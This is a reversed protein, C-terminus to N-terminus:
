GQRETVPSAIAPSVPTSSATAPSATPFRVTVRTGRGLESELTVSWGYRESLRQVISLGIGQGEGKREGARYFPTFVKTVEDQHIGIGTDRIEIGGPRVALTIRGQETYHCANRLLNCVLVSLVRPPAHLRFDCSQELVLEVPKNGLLHRAKAVEEGIVESVAFEVDPLGTDGERALILFAEILAEMDRGSRQIRVLARRSQVSLQPDSEIMDGAVRIVALPTRLEHSADRTFDREREVFQEIRCAFDHLSSALVLTEGEMDAPLNDADLRSADPCKPNWHRVQNALWIVPSVARRSSRYTSWAIAYIVVLVLALPAMGFWFALSDVQGQKFLLYLQEGSRQRDVLVLSGGHAKPLSHFGPALPRLEVPLRAADVGPQRLYGTMNYTDPVEAHPDARRRQWFHAAEEQLARQILVHKLIASAGYVGLVAAFSIAAGQLIFAVWIKRRLGSKASMPM